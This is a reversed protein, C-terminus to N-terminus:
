AVLEPALQSGELVLVVAPDTQRLAHSLRDRLGVRRLKNLLGGTGVLNFCTVRCGLRELARRRLAAHAHMAEDFAGILLVRTNHFHNM